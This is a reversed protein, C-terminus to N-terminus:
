RYIYGQPKVVSVISGRAKFWIALSKNDKERQERNLSKTMLREELICKARQCISVWEKEKSSKYVWLQVVRPNTLPPRYPSRKIKQIKNKMGPRSSNYSSALQRHRIMQKKTRRGTSTNPRRRPSGSRPPSPSRGNQPSPYRRVSAMASKPRIRNSSSPSLTNLRFDDQMGFAKDQGGQNESIQVRRTNTSASKPRIPSYNPMPTTIVMHKDQRINSSSEAAGFVNGNINKNLSFMCEQLVQDISPRQNPNNRLLATCINSLHVPTMNPIFSLKNEVGQFVNSQSLSPEKGNLLAYLLMGLSWMDGKETALHSIVTENDSSEVFVGFENYYKRSLQLEPATYALNDYAGRAYLNEVCGYASLQVKCTQERNQDASVYINSPRLNGHAHLGSKGHIHKLGCAIQLFIMKVYRISGSGITGMFRLMTRSNELPKQHIIVANGNGLKNKKNYANSGRYIKIIPLINVHNPVTDIFPLVHEVHMALRTMKTKKEKVNRAPRFIIKM